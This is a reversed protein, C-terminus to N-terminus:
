AAAAASLLATVEAPDVDRTIFAEGLGRVLIFTIRGDAVKKDKQMHGLLRRPDWIRGPLAELGTPLGVAALHRRLRAADESPCHGLQVSLDFAQRKYM